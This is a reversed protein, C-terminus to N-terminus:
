SNSIKETLMEMQQIVPNILPKRRMHPNLSSLSSHVKEEFRDWENTCKRNIIIVASGIMARM